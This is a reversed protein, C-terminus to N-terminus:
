HKNLSEDYIMKNLRLLDINMGISKRLIIKLENILKIAEKNEQSRSFDDIRKSLELSEESIKLFINQHAALIEKNTM